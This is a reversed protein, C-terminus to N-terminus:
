VRSAPLEVLRWRPLIQAVKSSNGSWLGALGEDLRMDMDTQRSVVRLRMRLWPRWMSVYVM